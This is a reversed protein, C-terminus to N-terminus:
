IPGERYREPYDIRPDFEPRAPSAAKASSLHEQNGRGDSSTTREARHVANVADNHTDMQESLDIDTRCCDELHRGAITLAERLADAQSTRMALGHQAADLQEVRQACALLAQRAAEEATELREFLVRALMLAENATECWLGASLHDSPNACIMSLYALKDQLGDSGVDPESRRSSDGQTVM